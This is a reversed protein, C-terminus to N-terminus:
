LAYIDTIIIEGEWDIESGEVFKFEINIEGDGNTGSQRCVDDETDYEFSYSGTNESDMLDRKLDYKGSMDTGSIEDIDWLTIEENLWENRLEEIKNALTTMINNKLKKKTVNRGNQAHDTKARVAM